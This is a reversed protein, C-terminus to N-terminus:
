VVVMAVLLDAIEQLLQLLEEDVNYGYRGAVKAAVVLGVTVLAAYAAKKKSTM